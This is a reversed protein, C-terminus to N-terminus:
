ITNIIWDLIDTIEKKLTESSNKTTATIADENLDEAIKLNNDLIKEKETNINSSM